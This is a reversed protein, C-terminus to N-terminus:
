SGSNPSEAGATRRFLAFSMGRFTHGLAWAMVEITGALISRTRQRAMRANRLLRLDGFMLASITSYHAAQLEQFTLAVLQSNREFRTNVVKVPLVSGAVQVEPSTVALRAQSQMRLPHTGLVRILMGGQSVDLIQASVAAGDIHLQGRGQTPVRHTGRRERRESVVGLALGAM